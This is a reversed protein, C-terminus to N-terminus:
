GADGGASKAKKANIRLLMETLGKLAKAYEQVVRKEERLARTYEAKSTRGARWDGKVEKVYARAFRLRLKTDDWHQKWEDM